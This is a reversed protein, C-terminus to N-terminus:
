SALPNNFVQPLLLLIPRWLSITTQPDRSSAVAYRCPPPHCLHCSSPLHLSIPSHLPSFSLSSHTIRIALSPSRNSYLDQLVRARKRPKEAGKGQAARSLPLIWRDPSPRPGQREWTIAFLELCESRAVLWAAAIRWSRALATWSQPVARRGREDDREIWHKTQFWLHTDALRRTM